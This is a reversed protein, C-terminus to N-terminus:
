NHKRNQNMGVERQNNPRYINWKLDKNYMNFLKKQEELLKTEYREKELNKIKVIYDNIKRYDQKQENSLNNNNQMKNFNAQVNGDKLLNDWLNNQDIINLKNKTTELENKLKDIENTLAKCKDSLDLDTKKDKDSPPESTDKPKDKPKNFEVKSTNEPFVYEKGLSINSINIHETISEAITGINPILVGGKILQKKINGGIYSANYTVQTNVIVKNYINEPTETNNIYNNEIKRYIDNISNKILKKMVVNVSSTNLNKMEKELYKPLNYLNKNDSTDYSLSYHNNLLLPIVVLRYKIEDSPTKKVIKNIKDYDRFTGYEVYLTKNNTDNEIMNRFKEQQISVTEVEIKRSVYPLQNPLTNNKCEEQKSTYEQFIKGFELQEQVTLKLLLSNYILPFRKTDKYENLYNVLKEYKKHKYLKVLHNIELSGLQKINDKVQKNNYYKYLDKYSLNYIIKDLINKLKTPKNQLIISSKYIKLRIHNINDDQKLKNFMSFELYKEGENLKIYTNHLKKKYIINEQLDKSLILINLLRLDSIYLKGPETKLETYEKIGESNTVVNYIKYEENFLYSTNRSAVNKSNINELSLQRGLKGNYYILLKINDTDLLNNLEELRLINRINEKFHYINNIKNPTPKLWIKNGGTTIELCCTSVDYKSKNNIFFDLEYDVMKCIDGNLNDKDIPIHLNDTDFEKTYFVGFNKIDFNNDTNTLDIDKV